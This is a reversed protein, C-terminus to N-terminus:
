WIDAQIQRDPGLVTPFGLFGFAEDSLDLIM